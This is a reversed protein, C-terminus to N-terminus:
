ALGVQRVSERGVSLHTIRTTHIMEFNKPFLNLPESRFDSVNPPQIFLIPKLACVFGISLDSVALPVFTKLFNLLFEELERAKAVFHDRDFLPPSLVAGPQVEDLPSGLGM